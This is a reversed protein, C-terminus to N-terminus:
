CIACQYHLPPRMLTMIDECLCNEAIAACKYDPTRVIIDMQKCHYKLNFKNKFPFAKKKKEIQRVKKRKLVDKKIQLCKQWLVPFLDPTHCFIQLFYFVKKWDTTTCQLTCSYDKLTQVLLKFHSPFRTGLCGRRM